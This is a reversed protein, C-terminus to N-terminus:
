GVVTLFIVNTDCRHYRVSQKLIMRNYIILVAIQFLSVGIEYSLRYINIAIFM